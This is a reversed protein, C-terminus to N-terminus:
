QSTTARAKPSAGGGVAGMVGTLTEMFPVPGRPMTVRIIAALLEAKEDLALRSANAEDLEEVGGAIIANVIEDSMGLIEALDFQGKGWSKRLDPFRFLLQAIAQVGVGCVTAQAGRVEVTETLPAIDILGPM